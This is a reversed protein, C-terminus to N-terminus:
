WGDGARLRLRSAWEASLRHGHISSCRRQMTAGGSTRASTSAARTASGSGCSPNVHGSMGSRTWGRAQERAAAPPTLSLIPLSNEQPSGRLSRVEVGSIALRDPAAILGTVEWNERVTLNALASCRRRVHWELLPRSQTQSSLGSRFRRKYGGAQFWRIDAGLDAPIAGDAEIERLIGPFLREVAEGGRPLLGHVHRGQPVGKRAALMGGCAVPDGALRDREILLIEDFYPALTRATLLGALSGGVVIARQGWDDMDKREMRSM